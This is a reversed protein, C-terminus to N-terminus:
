GLGFSSTGSARSGQTTGQENGKNLGLTLDVNLKILTGKVFEYIGVAFGFISGVSVVVGLIVIVIEKFM